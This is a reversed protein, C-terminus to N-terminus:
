KVMSYIILTRSGKKFNPEKIQNMPLIPPPHNKERSNALTPKCNLRWWPSWVRPVTEQIKNLWPAIFCLFCTKYIWPEIWVLFLAFILFSSWLQFYLHFFCSSTYSNVSHGKVHSSLATAKVEPHTLERSCIRITKRACNEVLATKENTLKQTTNKLNGM